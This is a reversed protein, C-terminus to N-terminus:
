QSSLQRVSTSTQLLDSVHTWDKLESDKRDDLRVPLFRRYPEKDGADFLSM